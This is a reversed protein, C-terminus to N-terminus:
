KGMLSYYIVVFNTEKVGLLANLFHGVVVTGHTQFVKVGRTDWRVDRRAPMEDVGGTVLLEM